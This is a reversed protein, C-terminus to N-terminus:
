VLMEAVVDLWMKEESVGGFFERNKTTKEM